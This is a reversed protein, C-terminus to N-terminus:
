LKWRRIRVFDGYRNHLARLKIYLDLDPTVQYIAWLGTLRAARPGPFSRLPHLHARYTFMSGFLGRFLCASLTITATFSLYWPLNGKAVPLLAISIYLAYGAKLMTPTHRNWEYHRSFVIAHLLIGACFTGVYYYLHM